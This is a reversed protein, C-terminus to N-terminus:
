PDVEQLLEVLRRSKTPRTQEAIKYAPIPVTRTSHYCTNHSSLWELIVPALKNDPFRKIITIIVKKEHDAPDPSLKLEEPFSAVPIGRSAHHHNFMAWLVDLNEPDRRYAERLYDSALPLTKGGAAVLNRSLEVLLSPTSGFREIFAQLPPYLAVAAFTERKSIAEDVKELLRITDHKTANSMFERVAEEYEEQGAPEWREQTTKMAKALRLVRDFDM